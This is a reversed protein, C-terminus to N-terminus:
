MMVRRLKDLKKLLRERKLSSLHDVYLVGNLHETEHDICEAFIKEAEVEFENGDRDLAKVRLWAPREVKAWVGPFSLCGEEIIQIGETEIIEPNIFVQPKTKDHSLDCVFIRKQVGVQPAALGAGNDAYMTELMDDALQRIDDDVETIPKAIKRLREDPYKLVELIAM